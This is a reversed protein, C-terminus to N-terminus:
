NRPPKGQTSRAFSDDSHRMKTIWSALEEPREYRYGELQFGLTAEDGVARPPLADPYLFVHHGGKRYERNIAWGLFALTRWGQEKQAIELMVYWTGEPWKERDREGPHGGCCCVTTVCPLSNLVKVLPVLNADIEEEPVADGEATTHTM